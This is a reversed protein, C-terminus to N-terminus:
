IKLFLYKAILLVHWNESFKLQFHIARTAALLQVYSSQIQKEQGNLDSGNNYVRM